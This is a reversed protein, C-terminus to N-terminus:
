VPNPLDVFEVDLGFEEKLKSGLAQIGLRETAYHGAAVFNVGAEKALNMTPEEPEGTVFLDIGADIASSFCGGAAGSVLAVTTVRDAGHPFVLPPQGFLDALRDVVQERNAPMQLRGTVGVPLGEYECFPRIDELDLARAAVANNGVEM